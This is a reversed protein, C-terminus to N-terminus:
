AAPHQPRVLDALRPSRLERSARSPLAEALEIVQGLIRGRRALEAPSPTRVTTGPVVALRSGAAALLRAFTAASPEKRGAEYTSVTAQSTAAREALQAQTLGARRRAAAIEHGADM